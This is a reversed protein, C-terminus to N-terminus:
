ESESYTWIAYGLVIWGVGYPSILGVFGYASLLVLGAIGLPISIILALPAYRPLIHVRYVAYGLPISGFLILLILSLIALIFAGDTVGFLDFNGRTLVYGIFFGTLTLLFGLSVIM